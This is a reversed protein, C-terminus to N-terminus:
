NIKLMGNEVFAKNEFIKESEKNEKLLNKIYQFYFIKKFIILVKSFLIILTSGLGPERTDILSPLKNTKNAVKLDRLRYHAKRWAKIDNSFEQHSFPVNLQNWLTQVYMTSKIDNSLEQHTSTSRTPKMTNPCLISFNNFISYIIEM